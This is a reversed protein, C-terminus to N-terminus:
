YLQSPPSHPLLPNLIFFTAVLNMIFLITLILEVLECTSTSSAVINHKENRLILDVSQSAVGLVDCQVHQINVQTIRLRHLSM